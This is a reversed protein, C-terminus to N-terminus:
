CVNVFHLYLILLNFENEKELRLKFTAVFFTTLM